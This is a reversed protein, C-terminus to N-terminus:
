KKFDKAEWPSGWFDNFFWWITLILFLGIAVGLGIKGILEALDALKEQLPTKKEDLSSEVSRIIGGWQSNMGVSLVLMVGM